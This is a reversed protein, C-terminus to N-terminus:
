VQTTGGTRRQLFLYLLVLPTMVVLMILAIASSVGSSGGLFQNYIVVSLTTNRPSNLLAVMTLERFALMALWLWGFVFAPRVLPLVIRRIVTWKSAGSMYGAEELEQNLQILAGNTVRTGFALWVLSLVIVVTTLSGYLHLVSPGYYLTVLLVSFGFILNPIGQPLFAVYDFFVRFRSRSRLVVWSFVGSMGMAITPAAIMLIVTHELGPRVLDWPINLYNDWSLHGFATASPPQLFSLGSSWVLLLLPLVQALLLYGGIFIWAGIQWRGLRRPMARYNKGTVVAYRRSEKLIRSYRWSLFLAIVVMFTSFAASIGYDPLGQQPNVQLYLYTSFTFVRNSLGIVAPVDFAAIAIVFVFIAAGLLGPKVLPLTVRRLTSLLGAGSTQAAEELSADLARMSSVSMVFIVPALGLGQVFGMGPLTGINLPGDTFGFINQLWTNLIGIRPNALFVWGMATIFGPILVGITLASYVFSRGFFDTRETLWALPVGIVMAWGLAILAYIVTNLLAQAAFSNRFLDIYHQLTWGGTTPRDRFSIAFTFALLGLIIITPIAALVVKAITAM